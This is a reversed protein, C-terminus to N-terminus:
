MERDQETLYELKDLSHQSDHFKTFDANEHATKEFAESQMYDYLMKSSTVQSSIYLNAMAQAKTDAEFEALMQYAASADSPEELYKFIVSQDVDIISRLFNFKGGEGTMETITERSPLLGNELFISMM